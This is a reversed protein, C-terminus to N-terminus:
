DALCAFSAVGGVCALVNFVRCPGQEKAPLAILTTHEGEGIFLLKKDVVLGAKIGHSDLKSYVGYQKYCGLKIM